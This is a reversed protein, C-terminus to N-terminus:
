LEEKKLRLDNELYKHNSMRKINLFRESGKECINIEGDFLGLIAYLEEPPHMRPDVIALATFGNSKLEATLATLWKRTQIAHHQLLVDSVLEICIRKPAKSSPDLKRIASTLAISIDTLNEVGKLKFVNPSSKVTADAQPNCVFLYFNSQFDEALTKASGPNTTLCFTVEGNKVGAELFSKVLMDREDCSPSTLVVAYNQPIGGCLLKDLDAYGTAVLDIPKPVSAVQGTEIYLLKAEVKEIDKKAGVKQFTEL